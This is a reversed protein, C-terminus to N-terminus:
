RVMLRFGLQMRADSDEEPAWQKLPLSAFPIIQYSPRNFEIGSRIWVVGGSYDTRGFDEEDKTVPVAGLSTEILEYQGGEGMVAVFVNSRAPDFITNYSWMFHLEMGLARTDIFQSQDSVESLPGEDTVPAAGAPVFQRFGKRVRRVGFAFDTSFLPTLAKTSIFAVDLQPFGVRGDSAPDVALRFAYDSEEVSWYYKLGVWSLMVTTGTASGAADWYANLDLQRALAYHLRFSLSVPSGSTALGAGPVPASSRYALEGAAAIGDHFTRRATESRYFPDNVPFPRQARAEYVTGPLLLVASLLWLM